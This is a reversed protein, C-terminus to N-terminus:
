DSVQASVAEAAGEVTDFFDIKEGEALTVVAKKWKNVRGMTRGFRRDKGPMVCTNVALVKVGFLTAVTQGNMAFVYQNGYKRAMTSKETVIPRRIVDEIRKM